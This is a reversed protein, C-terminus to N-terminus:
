GEERGPECVRGLFLMGGTSQDRIFFLFPHDAEFTHIRPIATKRMGVATAAAAETGEENVEIFAKHLVLSISIAEARTMGSFDAKGPVFPDHMGLKKLHPVLDFAGWTITFRPLAVHVHERQLRSTWEELRECSLTKEVESLGDIEDPLVIFMSLAEGEYPLEILQFSEFRGYRYRGKTHMMSAEVQKTGSVHFPATRTRDKDFPTM